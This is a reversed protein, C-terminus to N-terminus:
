AFCLQDKEAQSGVKEKEALKVKKTKYKKREQVSTKSLSRKRCCLTQLEMLKKVEIAHLNVYLSLIDFMHSSDVKKNKKLERKVESLLTESTKNFEMQIADDKKSSVSTSM